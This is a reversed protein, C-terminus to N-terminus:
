RELKLLAYYCAVYIEQNNWDSGRLTGKYKMRCKKMVKASSPNRPDHKTGIRNVDVVYFLFDIVAKLAESTIRKNWWTKEICYGIHVMLINETMSIVDIDGIPENGNDKM